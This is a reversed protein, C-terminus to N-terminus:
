MIEDENIETLRHPKDSITKNPMSAHKIAHICAYGSLIHM